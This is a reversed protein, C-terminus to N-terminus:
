EAGGETTADPAALAEERLKKVLDKDVSYTVDFTADENQKKTVTDIALNHFVPKKELGDVQGYTVNYNQLAVIFRSVTEYDKAKVSATVNYDSDVAFDTLRSEKPTSKSTVDFIKSLYIRNEDLRNSETLAKHFQAAENIVTQKSEIDSKLQKMKDNNRAAILNQTGLYLLLLVIVAGVLGSVVICILTTVKKTKENRLKTLRAEPLLNIRVSM